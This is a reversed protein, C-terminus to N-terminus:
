QVSSFRDEESLFAMQKRALSWVDEGDVACKNWFRSQRFKRGGAICCVFIADSGCARAARVLDRLEWEFPANYYGPAPPRFVLVAMQFSACARRVRSDVARAIGECVYPLEGPASAGLGMPIRRGSPHPESSMGRPIFRRPQLSARQALPANDRRSISCRSDKTPPSVMQFGMRASANPPENSGHADTRRLPSAPPLTRLIQVSAGSTHPILRAFSSQHM